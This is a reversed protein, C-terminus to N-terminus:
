LCVHVCARARVSRSRQLKEALELPLREEPRQWHGSMLQLTQPQWAWNELMQHCARPTGDSVRPTRCHTRVIFRRVSV